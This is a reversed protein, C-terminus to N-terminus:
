LPDCVFGKADRLLYAAVAPVMDAVLETADTFQEKVVRQVARHLNYHLTGEAPYWGQGRARYVTRFHEMRVLGLNLLAEDTLATAPDGFEYGCTCRYVSPGYTTAFLPVETLHPDSADFPEHYAAFRANLLALVDGPDESRWVARFVASEGLLREVASEATYQRLDLWLLAYLVATHE